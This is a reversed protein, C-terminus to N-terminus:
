IILVPVDRLEIAIPYAMGHMAMQDDDKGKM